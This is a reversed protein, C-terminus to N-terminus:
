HIVPHDSEPGNWRYHVDYEEYMSVDYARSSFEETTSYICKLNDQKWEKFPISCMELQIARNEACKLGYRTRREEIMEILDTISIYGFIEHEIVKKQKDVYSLAFGEDIDWRVLFRNKSLIGPTRKSSLKQLAQDKDLIGFYWPKQCLYTVTSLFEAPKCGSSFAVLMEVADRSVLESGDHKNKIGLVATVTHLPLSLSQINLQIDYTDNIQNLLKEFKIQQKIKKDFPELLKKGRGEDVGNGTVRHEM